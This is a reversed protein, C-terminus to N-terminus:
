FGGFSDFSDSALCLERDEILTQTQINELAPRNSAISSGQTCELAIGVHIQRYLLEAATSTPPADTLKPTEPFSTSPSQAPPSGEPPESPNKLVPQCIRSLRNTICNLLRM